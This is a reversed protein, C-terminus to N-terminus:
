QLESENEPARFVARHVSANGPSNAPAENFGPHACMGNYRWLERM